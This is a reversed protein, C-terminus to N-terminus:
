MSDFECYYIADEFMKSLKRMVHQSIKGHCTIIGYSPNYYGREDIDWAEHGWILAHIEDSRLFTEVKGNELVIWLFEANGYFDNPLAKEWKELEM